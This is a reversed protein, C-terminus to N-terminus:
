DCLEQKVGRANTSIIVSIKKRIDEFTFPKKIFSETVFGPLEVNIEPLDVGATILVPIKMDMRNIENIIDLGSMGPMIMDTVVLDFRNKKILEIAKVGSTVGRTECGLKELMEKLVNLVDQEDDVVLVKCRM